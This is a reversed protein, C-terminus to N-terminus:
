RFEKRRLYFLTLFIVAVDHPQRYSGCTSTHDAQLRIPEEAAAATEYVQASKIDAMCDWQCEGAAAALQHDLRGRAPTQRSCTERLNEGLM